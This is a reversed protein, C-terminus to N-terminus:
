FRFIGKLWICSLDRYAGYSGRGDIGGTFFDSGLSLSVADTLAYEASVSGVSDFDFLDLYYWVSLTLTERFFSRAVRLSAGNKRWPRETGGSYADPLLDEYYQASLSWGSPNWDIGALAQLRQQKVPEDRQRALLAAATDAAPREYRGGGTWATELRLLIEGLPISADAGATITREYEPLLEIGTPIPPGGILEKGMFPIDNWGYFGMASFDVGSSYWSVRLGYEGDAITRPPAADQISVPLAAPWAAGGMDVSSPFFVAYLPNHEGPLRAPSFLPLWLAEIALAPFSYRLKLGDVALRSGAFDLGAYATLNQPCVVDTLILGDAVGWSVLQRGLRLSFGGAGWDLWAEGLAFGTRDPSVGNYEASLSVFAVAEGAFASIEGTFANRSDTLRLDQSFPVAQLTEVSGHLEVKVQASLPAACLLLAVTCLLLATRLLLVRIAFLGGSRCKM